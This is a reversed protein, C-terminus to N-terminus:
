SQVARMDDLCEGIYTATDHFGERTAAEQQMECYRIFTAVDHNMEPVNGRVDTVRSIYTCEACWEQLKM